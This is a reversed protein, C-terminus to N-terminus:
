PRCNQSASALRELVEYVAAMDHEAHGMDMAAQYIPITASFLPSPCGASALAERILAIDKQWVSNKMNAVNWGREAMVPGRVQLMRSGGGGDAVAKVVLASDLGSRVALLLAEATAVIHIGVLLNAVAKVKMGNGFEGFNYCARAFGSIIPGAQRLADAPGSAFVVLDRNRAQSGTGSVPCDLLIVGSRALVDRASLKAPLPLTSTDVVIAGAICSEALEICVANLAQESPLSLVLYRCRKGVERAHPLATGGAQSLPHCRETLIDTGAVDFGAKLLNAAMASGMIGLGIVGVPGQKENTCAVGASITSNV